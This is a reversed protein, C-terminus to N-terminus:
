SYCCIRINRTSYDGLQEYLEEDLERMKPIYTLSNNIKSLEKTEEKSVCFFKKIKDLFM